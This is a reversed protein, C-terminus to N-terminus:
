KETEGYDIIIEARPFERDVGGFKLLLEPFVFWNDDEIVGVDVLLDMISEAKNTKDARRKDPAYFTIEIRSINEVKTTDQSKLEWLKEEHWAEYDKSPVDFIRGGRMIRRRQNKKSPIRGKLVLNRKM